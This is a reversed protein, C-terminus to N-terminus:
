RTKKNEMSGIARKLHWWGGILANNKINAASEMAHVDDEEEGDDDNDDDDVENKKNSRKELKVAYAGAGALRLKVASAVDAACKKPM